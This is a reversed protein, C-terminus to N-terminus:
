REYDFERGQQLLPSAWDYEVQILPVKTEQFQITM